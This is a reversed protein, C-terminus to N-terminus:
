PPTERQLTDELSKDAPTRARRGVALSALGSAFLFATSPEPVFTLDLAVIGPLDPVAGQVLFPTVLRVHSSDAAGSDILSPGGTQNSEVTAQGTTWYAGTVGFSGLANITNITGPGLGVGGAAVGLTVAGTQLTVGCPGSLCLTLSGDIVMSGSGPSGSGPQNIDAGPIFGFGQGAPTGPPSGFNGQGNTVSLEFGGVPSLIPDSVVASVPGAFIGPTLGIVSTISSGFGTVDASGTGNWTETMTAAPVGGTGGITVTLSASSLQLVIAKAPSAAAAILLAFALFSRLARAVM